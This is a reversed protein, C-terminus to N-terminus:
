LKGASIGRPREWEIRDTYIEVNANKGETHSKFRLLPQSV